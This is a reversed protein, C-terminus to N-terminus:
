MIARFDNLTKLKGFNYIISCHTDKLEVGVMHMELTSIM